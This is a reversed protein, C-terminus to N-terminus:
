YRPPPKPRRLKDGVARSLVDSMTTTTETACDRDTLTSRLRLLQEDRPLAHWDALEAESPAATPMVPSRIKTEAMTSSYCVLRDSAM